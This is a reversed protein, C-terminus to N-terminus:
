RAGAEVRAKLMAVHRPGGNGLVMARKRRGEIPTVDDNVRV